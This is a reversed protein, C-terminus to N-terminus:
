GVSLDNGFPISVCLSVATPIADLMELAETERASSKVSAASLSM